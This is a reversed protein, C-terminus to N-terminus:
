KGKLVSLVSNRKHKWRHWALKNCAICVRKGNVIRTNESSYLHGKPCHTKKTNPNNEQTFHSSCPVKGTMGRKANESRTVAELHSPNVCKRNRCLHDIVLSDHVFCDKLLMYSARHATITNGNLRFVAYGNPGVYGNWNWCGNSDTTFNSLIRNKNKESM